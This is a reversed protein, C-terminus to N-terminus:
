LTEEHTHMTPQNTFPKNLILFIQRVAEDLLDSTSLGISLAYSFPTIQASIFWIIYPIAM